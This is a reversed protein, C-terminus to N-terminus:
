AGGAMQGARDPQVVAVGTENSHCDYCAARILQETEPLDWQIAQTVPPNTIDFGPIFQLIVFGVIAVAVIGVIVRCISM